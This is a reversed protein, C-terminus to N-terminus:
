LKFILTFFSMRIIWIVETVVNIDANHNLLLKVVDTHGRCSAFHLAVWGDQEFLMCIMLILGSVCYILLLVYMSGVFILDM